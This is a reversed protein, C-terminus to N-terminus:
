TRDLGFRQAYDDKKAQDDKTNGPNIFDDGPNM